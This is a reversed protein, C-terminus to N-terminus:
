RIGQPNGAHENKKAFILSFTGISIGTMLGAVDTVLDMPDSTRGPVFSQHIEDLIGYITGVLGAEILIRASSRGPISSRWWLLLMGFVLYVFFHVTFFSVPIDPLRDGPVSSAGFITGAFALSFAAAIAHARTTHTM